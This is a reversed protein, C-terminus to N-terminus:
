AAWREFYMLADTNLMRWELWKGFGASGDIPTVELVGPANDAEGTMQIAAYVDKRDQESWGSFPFIWICNCTKRLNWTSPLGPFLAMAVPEKDRSVLFTYRDFIEGAQALAGALNSVDFQEGVGLDLALAVAAPETMNSLHDHASPSALPSLTIAPHPEDSAPTFRTYLTSFNALLNASGEESLFRDFQRWLPHNPTWGILIRTAPNIDRAFKAIDAMAKGVFNKATPGSEPKNRAVDTIMILGDGVRVASIHGVVRDNHRELRRLHLDHPWARTCGKAFARIACTQARIFPGTIAGSQCFVSLIDHGLASVQSRAETQIELARPFEFTALDGQVIAASTWRLKQRGDDACITWTGSPLSCAVRLTLHRLGSQAQDEPEILDVIEAVETAGGIKVRLPTEWLFLERMFGQIRRQESCTEWDPEQM